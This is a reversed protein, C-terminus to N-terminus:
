ISGVSSLSKEFALAADEQMGPLVHSYTDLTINISAHGLRKSAIKPHIGEKLMLTAHTHRLDHFRAKDLGIKRVVKKFAHTITDPNIPGGKSNPFAFESEDWDLGMFEMQEKRKIRLGTLLTTASPPLSLLRRSYPTKPDNITIGRGVVRTVTQNVYIAKNSLSVNEWRFGLVEGRRM